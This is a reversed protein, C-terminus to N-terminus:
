IRSAKDELKSLQTEVHDLDKSDKDDRITYTNTWGYINRTDRTGTKQREIDYYKVFVVPKNRRGKTESTPKPKPKSNPSGPSLPDQCAFQKVVFKPIYHQYTKNGNRDSEAPEPEVTADRTSLYRPFLPLAVSGDYQLCKSGNAPERKQSAGCM